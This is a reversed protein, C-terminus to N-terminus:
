TDETATISIPIETRLLAPTGDEQYFTVLFKGKYQGPSLLSPDLLPLEAVQHGPPLLQSRVVTTDRIVVELVLSQNSRAPNAFSLHALGDSLSATVQDSYTINVAGGGEAQDLKETDEEREIPFANVETALPADPSLAPSPDRFFLAWLALGVSLCTLATLAFFALQYTRQM